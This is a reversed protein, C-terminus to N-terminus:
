HDDRGVDKIRDKWAWPTMGELEKFKHDLSSADKFGCERATVELTAAPNATIYKKVAKIRMKNVVTRFPENYHDSIIQSLTTRGIGSMESLTIMSLDDQRFVEDKELLCIIKETQKDKKTPKHIEEATAGEDTEMKILVNEEEKIHSLGHLTLSTCKDCFFELHSILHLTVTTLIILLITASQHGMMYARGMFVIPVFSLMALIFLAATLLSPTSAGRAFLFRCLHGPRYGEKMLVRICLVLLILGTVLAYINIFTEDFFAYLQWVENSYEAPMVSGADLLETMRATREFGLIYYLMNIITGMIVAPLLLILHFLQLRYEPRLHMYLYLCDITLLAIMFPVSVTEIRVMSDYDTEPLTYLAFAAYYVAGVFRIWMMLWQRQTKVRFAFTVAWMLSILCPFFHIMMLLM